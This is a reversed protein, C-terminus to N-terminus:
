VASESVDGSHASAQRSLALAGILLGFDRLAIDALRGRAPPQRHARWRGAETGSDAAPHSRHHEHIDV